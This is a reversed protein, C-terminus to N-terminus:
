SVKGSKLIKGAYYIRPEKDNEILKKKMIDMGAMEDIRTVQYKTNGIAFAENIM